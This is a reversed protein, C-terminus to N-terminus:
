RHPRPQEAGKSATAIADDVRELWVFERRDRALRPNSARLAARGAAAVKKKVDVPPKWCPEALRERPLLKLFASANERRALTQRAVDCPTANLDHTPARQELPGFPLRAGGGVPSDTCRAAFGCDTAM